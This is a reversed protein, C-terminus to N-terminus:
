SQVVSSLCQKAFSSREKNGKATSVLYILAYRLLLVSKTLFVNYKSTHKKSFYVLGKAIHPERRPTFGGIHIYTLSPVYLNVYGAKHIRYSFEYDEGYLFIKEDFGDVANFCSKRLLYLSGEAYDIEYAEKDFSGFQFGDDQKLRNKFVFLSLPELPFIGVTQKYVRESDTCQGCLLGTTETLKSLLHVSISSTLVTDPNLILINSFFSEKVGANIATGYGPNDPLSLFRLNQVSSSQLEIIPQTPAPSNDVIILEFPVQVWELISRYCELLEDQPNFTVVVISVGDNM